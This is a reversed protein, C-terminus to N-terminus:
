ISIEKNKKQQHYCQTKQELRLTMPPKEKKKTQNSKKMKTKQQKNKNEKKKEGWSSLDIM